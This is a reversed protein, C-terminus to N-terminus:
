QSFVKDDHNNSGCSPSLALALTSYFSIWTEYRTRIVARLHTEIESQQLRSVFANIDIMKLCSLTKTVPVISAVM